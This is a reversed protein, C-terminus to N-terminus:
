GANIKLLTQTCRCLEPNDCDHEELIGESFNGDWEKNLDLMTQLFEIQETQSYEVLFGLVTRCSSCYPEAQALEKCRGANIGKDHKSWHKPICRTHIGIGDRVAQNVGDLIGLKKGCCRCPPIRPAIRELREIQNDISM